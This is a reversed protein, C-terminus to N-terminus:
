PTATMALKTLPNSTPPTLGKNVGAPFDNRKTRAHSCALRPSAAHALSLRKSRSALATRICISEEEGWITGTTWPQGSVLRPCFGILFSHNELMNQPCGRPLRSFGIYFCCKDRVAKCFWHLFSNSRAIDGGQIFFCILKIEVTSMQIQMQRYNVILM